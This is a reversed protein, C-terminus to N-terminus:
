KASAPTGRQKGAYPGDVHFPPGDKEVFILTEPFGSGEFTSKLKFGRDVGEFVFRSFAFPGQAAPDPVTEFASEGQTKCAIAAQLMALWVEIKVERRKAKEVAPFMLSVFPNSSHHLQTDLEKIKEEFQSQPLATISSVKQYLEGEERLLKLVDESTSAGGRTVQEWLSAPVDSTQGPEPEGMSTFLERIGTMVKSDDAPNAKQLDLIRNVLWDHFFVKEMLVSAAVTTRPPAAVFGVALQKLTDPSFKGFNEAVSDCIIAEMAIQVLVSILTGDRSVNRAMALTALLDDRADAQRGHQLDWKVRLRMAVAVAKARALHPLLTAPGQSLDIGWDCPVTSLAAQKILRFQNDYGAVIKDFREPLNQSLGERSGLYADDAQSLPEPAVLFAQNYLLAPNIDARSADAIASLPAAAVAFLSILIPGATKM